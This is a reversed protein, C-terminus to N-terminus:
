RIILRYLKMFFEGIFLHVKPECVDSYNWWANRESDRIPRSAHDVQMNFLSNWIIFGNPYTSVPGRRRWPLGYKAWKKRGNPWMMAPGIERHIFGKKYWVKFGIAKHHKHAFKTTMNQNYFVLADWRIYHKFRVFFEESFNEPIMNSCLQYWDILDANKIVLEETLSEPLYNPFARIVMRKDMFKSKEVEYLLDAYM